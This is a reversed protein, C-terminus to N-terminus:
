YTAQLYEAFEESIRYRKVNNFTIDDVLGLNDLVGAKQGLHGHAEEFYELTSGDNWYSWGKRLLVFVRAFPHDHLDMRMEQLLEPMMQEAKKIAAQVRAPLAGTRGELIALAEAEARAKIAHLESVTYRTHDSDVLKGHNQCMWIGNEASARHESSIFPDYRPGGESAATIHAAVGINISKRPDTQPGSTQQGCQSCRFAVRKALTDKTLQSFDDRPM